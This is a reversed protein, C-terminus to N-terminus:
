EALILESDDVIGLKIEVSNGLTAPVNVVIDLAECNVKLSFETSLNTGVFEISLICLSIVLIEVGIDDSM